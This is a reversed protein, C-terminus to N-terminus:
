EERQEMVNEAYSLISALRRVADSAMYIRECLEELREQKKAIQEDYVELRNQRIVEGNRYDELIGVLKESFNTGEQANVYDIMDSSLRISKHFLNNAM